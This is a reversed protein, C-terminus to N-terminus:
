KLEIKQGKMPVGNTNARIDNLPLITRDVELNSIRQILFLNFQIYLSFSQEFSSNRTFYASLFDIYGNIYFKKRIRGINLYYSIRHHIFITVVFIGYFDRKDLCTSWDQEIEEERNVDEKADFYKELFSRREALFSNRPPPFSNWPATPDSCNILDRFLRSAGVKFIWRTSIAYFFSSVRVNLWNIVKEVLELFEFWRQQKSRRPRTGEKWLQSKYISLRDM